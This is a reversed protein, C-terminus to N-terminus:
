AEDERRRGRSVVVGAVIAVAIVVIAIILGTPAGSSGSSASGVVPKINIYSEPGWAFLVNGGETPVPIYGTFRDNRYAQLYNPYNLVLEPMKDWLYQQMTGVYANRQAVDLLTKQHLYMADYTPDSYCGDSWVLCSDTTFLSLLFDPDPDGGWDWVYADFTGDAWYTYAKGEGVPILHVGIGVQQLEGQILKGTDVSGSLSTITLINLIVPKGSADLRIGESNKKDYGAQDLLQNALTPNYTQLAPDTPEYHWPSTPMTITTGVSALGLWVKNVITQRDIGASIAQRVRIDKLAPNNTAQKTQGGFNFALNNFYSPAGKVQTINSQGALSNFLTANLDDVFDIQGGKLAQVSAERSNFVQYDIEDITPRGGWYSKNATMTWGTGPKVATLVFPGSGVAPVNAFAKAGKPDNEFQKWIHEPLIPIWPPTLPAATPKPSKWVLTTANPAEFTPKDPLYGTFVSMNNQVIFNYTFAIDAATLDVGDSWKVGSRITCTWTTYDTSHDCKTALGPTPTLDKQGFNFLMDYANFLMEYDTGYQAKFPNATLLDSQTGVRFVIKGGSGTSSPTSSTSQAMASGTLLMAGIVVATAAVTTVRSNRM